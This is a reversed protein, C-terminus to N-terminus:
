SLSIWTVMNSRNLHLTTQEPIEKTPVLAIECMHAKLILSETVM